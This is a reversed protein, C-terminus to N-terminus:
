VKIAFRHPGQTSLHSCEYANISYGVHILLSDLGSQM